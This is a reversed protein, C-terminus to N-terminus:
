RIFNKSKLDEDGGENANSRGTWLLSKSLDDTAVSFIVSKTAETVIVFGGVPESGRSTSVDLIRIGTSLVLDLHNFSGVRVVSGITDEVGNSVNSILVSVTCRTGVNGM